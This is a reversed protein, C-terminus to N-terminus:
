NTKEWKNLISELIVRQQKSSINHPLDEILELSVKYEEAALTDKMSESQLFNVVSDAKGHYLAITKALGSTDWALSRYEFFTDAEDDNRAEDILKKYSADTAKAYFEELDYIGNGLILWDIDKMRKSLLGAAIVASGTAWVGKPKKFWNISTMGEAIAADIAESTAPGSFDNNKPTSKGFGPRNIAFVSISHSLFAQAVAGRCVKNDFAKFDSNILIVVEKKKEASCSFWEVQEEGKNKLKYKAVGSVETDPKVAKFKTDDSESLDITPKQLSAACSNLVFVVSLLRVFSM